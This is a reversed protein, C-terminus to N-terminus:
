GGSPFAKGMISILFNGAESSSSIRSEEGRKSFIDYSNKAIDIDRKIRESAILLEQLKVDQTQIKDIRKEVSDIKESITELQRKQNSVYDEVEKRLAKSMNSVQENFLKVKDSDASYRTVIPGGDAVLEQLAKSLNTIAENGEIFSFYSLEKGQLSKEIYEILHKKE